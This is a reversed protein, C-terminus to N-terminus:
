YKKYTVKVKKSEKHEEIDWICREESDKSFASLRKWKQWFWKRYQSYYRTKNKDEVKIIRYM